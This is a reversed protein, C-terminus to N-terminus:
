ATRRRCRRQRRRRRAGHTPIRRAPVPAGAADGGTRAVRRGGRIGGALWVRQRFPRCLAARATRRPRHRVAHPGAGPRSSARLEHGRGQHVHDAAHRRRARGDVPLDCLLDVQRRRAPRAGPLGPRLRGAVDRDPPRPRHPRRALRRLFQHVARRGDGDHQRADRGTAVLRVGADAAARVRRHQLQGAHHLQGHCRGRLGAAERRPPPIRGHAAAPTAASDPVAPSSM